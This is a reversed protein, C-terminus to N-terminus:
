SITHQKKSKFYIVLYFLLCLGVIVPFLYFRKWNSLYQIKEFLHIFSLTAIALLMFVLATRVAQISRRYEYAANNAHIEKRYNFYQPHRTLYHGGIAVLISFVSLMMMKYRVLWATEQKWNLYLELGNVLLIIVALYTILSKLIKDSSTPEIHIDPHQM